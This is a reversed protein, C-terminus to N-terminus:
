YMRSKYAIRLLDRPPDASLVWISVEMNPVRMLLKDRDIAKALMVFSGGNAQFRDVYADMRGATTPGFSGSPLGAPTKAPGAYYVPHDRLYTPMAERSGATRINEPPSSGQRCDNSWELSLRTKVPYNSLIQRIKEMPQNLDLSVVEGGLECEDMDPMYQAPNMELTELFVGDRTIKANAQRDASCSVGIGIPLSAGHRPLRVVRVDHCFYKWWITGWHRNRELKLIESEMALDRFAHGDPGGQTPLGDLERISAMKVTKLNMEASTGGIVIALHYPPCAATGLLMFQDRLFEVLKAPHLM